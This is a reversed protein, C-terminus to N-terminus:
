TTIIGSNIVYVAEGGGASGGGGGMSFSVGNKGASVSGAISFGGSGGGGGVSQALIDPLYIDLLVLEPHLEDVLRLADQGTTAEGVVEFGRIREVFSRHVSAAMFDDDVVLVRIM